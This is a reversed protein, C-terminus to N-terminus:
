APEIGGGDIAEVVVAFTCSSAHADLGVFPDM